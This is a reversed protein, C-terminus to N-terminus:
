VWFVKLCLNRKLSSGDKKGSFDKKEILSLSWSYHEVTDALAESFFYRRYYIVIGLM